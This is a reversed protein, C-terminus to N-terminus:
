CVCIDWYHLTNSIMWDSYLWVCFYGMEKICNIQIEYSDENSFESPYDVDDPVLGSILMYNSCTGRNRENKTM